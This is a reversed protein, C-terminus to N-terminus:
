TTQHHSSVAIAFFALLVERTKRAYDELGTGLLTMSCLVSCLKASRMITVKSYAISQQTHQKIKPCEHKLVLIHCVIGTFIYRKLHSYVIVLNISFVTITRMATMQQNPQLRRAIIKCSQMDYTKKQTNTKKQKFKTYKEEETLQQLVM